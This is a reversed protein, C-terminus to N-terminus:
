MEGSTWLSGIRGEAQSGGLLISAQGSLLWQGWPRLNCEVPLEAEALKRQNIFGDVDERAQSM